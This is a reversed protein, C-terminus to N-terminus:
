QLWMLGIPVWSVWDVPYDHSESLSISVLPYEHSESLGIPVCSVWVVPYEQSESLSIPGIPLWSVWLKWHLSMLRLSVVPSEHSWHTNM